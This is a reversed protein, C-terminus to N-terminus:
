LHARGNAGRGLRSRVRLDWLSPICPHMVNPHNSRRDDLRSCRCRSTASAETRHTTLNHVKAAMVAALGGSIFATMAFLQDPALHNGPFVGVGLAGLREILYQGITVPGPALVAASGDRSPKASAHRKPKKPTSTM